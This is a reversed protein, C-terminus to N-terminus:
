LSSVTFRYTSRSFNFALKNFILVFRGFNTFIHSYLSTVFQCFKVFIYKAQTFFIAFLIKQPSPSSKQSVSYMCSQEDVFINTRDMRAIYSM